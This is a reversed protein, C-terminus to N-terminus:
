LHCKIMTIIFTVIRTELKQFEFCINASIEWWSQKKSKALFTVFECILNHLVTPLEGRPFVQNM